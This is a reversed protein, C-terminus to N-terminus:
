AVKELKPLRYLEVFTCRKSFSAADINAAMYSECIEMLQKVEYKHAIAFLGEYHKKITEKNIEGSYFYELMAKFCEASSDVIKIKGSRAEKMYKQEFM